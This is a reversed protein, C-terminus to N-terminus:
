REGKKYKLLNEYTMWGHETLEFEPPDTKVILTVKAETAASMKRLSDTVGPKDDIGFRSLLTLVDTAYFHRNESQKSALGGALTLLQPSSLEPDTIRLSVCREEDNLSRAASPAKGDVTEPLSAPLDLLLQHIFSKETPELREFDGLVNLVEEPIQKRQPRWRNPSLDEGCSFRIMANAFLYFDEPLLEIDRFNRIASSM